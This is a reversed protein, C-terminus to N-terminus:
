GATPRVNFIASHTVEVVPRGGNRFVVYLTVFQHGKREWRATPVARVEIPDGLRLPGRQVIRSGTHIWPELVYHQSFVANAAQLVMGPQLRPAEGERYLALADGAAACWDALAERTPAWHLARLPADVQVREWTIPLVPKDDPAPTLDARPDLPPLAGGCHTELAALETGAENRVTVRYGAEAGDAPLPDGAVTLWEGDYAPQLLKLESVSADLWREGLREVLPTTMHAYVLTGAVLGGRFGYRAATADDHIKNASNISVNVTRVRHPALATAPSSDTM